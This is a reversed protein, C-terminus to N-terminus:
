DKGEAEAEGAALAAARAGMHGVVGPAAECLAAFAADDPYVRCSAGLLEHAAAVDGPKGDKRQKIGDRYRKYEAANPCRFAVKAVRGPAHPVNLARVASDGLCAELESIADTDIAAQADRAEAAAAKRAERKAEAIELPSQPSKADTM